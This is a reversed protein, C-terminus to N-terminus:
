NGISIVTSPITISQLKTMSKFSNDSITTVGEKIEIIEITEEYKKWPKNSSDITNMEGEGYITLKNQSTTIYKM